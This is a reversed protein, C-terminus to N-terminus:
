PAGEIWLWLGGGLAAAGAIAWSVDAVVAHSQARDAERQYVVDLDPSLPSSAHNRAELSSIGFGIGIAAAVAGAAFLSLPPILSPPEPVLPPPAAVLAPEPKELKPVLTRILAELHTPWLDPDRPLDLTSKAPDPGEREVELRLFRLGAFARVHLLLGARDREVCRTMANRCPLAPSEIWLADRGSVRGIARALEDVLSTADERSLEGIEDIEVGVPTVVVMMALAPILM